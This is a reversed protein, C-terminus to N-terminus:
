VYLNSLGEIDTQEISRKKTEGEASTGFMTVTGCSGDYVDDLGLSHGTEHTAIAQVDMVDSRQSGDGWRYHVGDFVMDYETIRRQAAPGGFVGWVITVAVTGPRGEITAFGIDNRGDPAKLNIVAGSSEDVAGILPGAVLKEYRNLACRWEDNARQLADILFAQSLGHRNLTHLYYGRTERWAAGDAIPGTCHNALHTARVTRNFHVHKDSRPQDSSLAVASRHLNLFAYGRVRVGQERPHEHEGIFYTDHSIREHEQLRIIGSVKHTRRVTADNASVAASAAVFVLACYLAHVM